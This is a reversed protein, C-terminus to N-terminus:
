LDEYKWRVTMEALGDKISYGVQTGKGESAVVVIKIMEKLFECTKCVEGQKKIVDFRNAIDRETVNGM